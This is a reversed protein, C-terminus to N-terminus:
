MYATNKKDLYRPILVLYNLYFLAVNIIGYVGFIILLATM